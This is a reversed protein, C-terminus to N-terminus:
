GGSRPDRSYAKTRRPPPMRLQIGSLNGISISAQNVAKNVFPLIRSRFDASRFLWKIYEPSVVGRKPRFCLLNMGHVVDEDLDFLACKGIHDVSNIHSFLIDGSRLLWKDADGKALGAYGFKQPDVEGKSITEIRTIPLGGSDASQKVNMGNRIFEFFDPLPADIAQSM